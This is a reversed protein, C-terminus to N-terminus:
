TGMGKVIPYGIEVVLVAGAATMPMLAILEKLIRRNMATRAPDIPGKHILTHIGAITFSIGIIFMFGGILLASVGVIQEGNKQILNLVDDRLLIALIAISAIASIATLIALKINPPSNNRERKKNPTTM